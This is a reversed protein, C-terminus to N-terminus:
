LSFSLVLFSFSRHREQSLKIAAFRSLLKENQMKVKENKLGM